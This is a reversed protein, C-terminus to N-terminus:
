SAIKPSSELHFTVLTPLLQREEMRVDDDFSVVVIVVHDTLATEHVIAGTVFLRPARSTGTGRALGDSWPLCRGYWRSPQCSSPLFGPSSPTPLPFIVVGLLRM